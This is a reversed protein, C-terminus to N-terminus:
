IGPPRQKRLKLKVSCSTTPYIQTRRSWLIVCKNRRLAEQVRASAAKHPCHDLNDVVKMLEKFVMVVHWNFKASCEVYGCKWQKRVINAVERKNHGMANGLLGGGGSSEGMSLTLHQFHPLHHHPGPQPPPQLDQKNAVVFIPVDVGGRSETIQERLSRVHQFSEESTIDFVLLYATASRLGYGRFESWECLSTTPFYPIVPCDVIKVEYLNHNIIVSPFYCHRRSTTRHREPFNNCVFQEVLSTKGVGSAGLVVIKVRQMAGGEKTGDGSLGGGAMKSYPLSSAESM